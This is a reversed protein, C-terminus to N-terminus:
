RVGLGRAVIGRLIESTGGRITFGPSHLIAQALLRADPDDSTLDPVVGLVNRAIEVVEGEFKTGLDKVLAAPIDAELGDAVQGAVALSMRRLTLLRAILLGAAERHELAGTRVRHIIRKVLPFTSLFREPGCRELALESTVQKWGSGVEGLMLDDPVLVDDFVVENFLHEGSLSRIPRVTVGPADLPVILQSLGAHRDSPGAPSTRVLALIAHARDAGTVWLKSGTVRWERAVLAARTRVAALDSGADPESMGLAFYCSGSAILPLFRSRQSESGFRLIAPGVQRDAAWHAAVPAGAALLEEAVVYREIHSRGAGGYKRPLTMGVWGQEALARTFDEDWGSHWADCGPVFRGAELATALFARVQRRLDPLPGTGIATGGAATATSV